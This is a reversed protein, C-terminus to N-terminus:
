DRPSPSTYLLCDEIQRRNLRQQDGFSVAQTFDPNNEIRLRYGTKLRGGPNGTMLWEFQTDGQPAPLLTITGGRDNLVDAVTYHTNLTLVTENLPVGEGGMTAQPWVVVRVEEQSYIKFDYAFTSASHNGTYEVEYNDNTIM